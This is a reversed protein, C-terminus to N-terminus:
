RMWARCAEIVEEVKTYSDVSSFVTFGLERLWSQVLRQRPREKKGPQKLEVFVVRGGPLLIMRDPVGTCGPCVLKLCLVRRGSGGAAEMGLKKVGSQLRDEIRSELM